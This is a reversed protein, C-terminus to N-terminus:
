GQSIQRVFLSVSASLSPWNKECSHPMLTPPPRTPQLFHPLSCQPERPLPCAPPLLPGSSSGQWGKCSSPAWGRGRHLISCSSLSSGISASGSLLGLCTLTSVRGIRAAEEASLPGLLAPCHRLSGQVSSPAASALSRTSPLRLLLSFEDGVHPPNLHPPSPLLFYHAKLSQPRLRIM